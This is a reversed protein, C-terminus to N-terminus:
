LVDRGRSGDAGAAPPGASLLDLARGTVLVYVVHKGGDVLLARGGLRGARGSLALLALWPGWVAALHAVELRWGAAGRRVLVARSVGGLAGYGWHLTANVLRSSAARAGGDGDERRTLTAAM